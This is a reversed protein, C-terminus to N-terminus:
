QESYHSSWDQSFDPYVLAVNKAITAKVADFAKEHIDDWHWPVRPKGRKKDAKTYGCEGVLDTLPALM